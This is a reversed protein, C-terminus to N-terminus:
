GALARAAAIVPSVDDAYHRLLERLRASDAVESGTRQAAALAVLEHFTAQQERATEIARTLSADAAAADGNDAQIQALQVLLPSLMMREGSGQAIALGAEVSTRAQAVQGAARCAEAYHFHFDSLAFGMGLAEVTCLTGRMETLGEDIRGQAVLARGHLWAFGSHSASVEQDRIVGYLRETLAYVTDFEGALAHLMAAVYLAAVESVPHRNAVAIEAAHASLQRARRPEGTLWAVLALALSTEAGPDQVFRTASLNGALAEHAKLAAELQARATALEGMMMLTLGMANLGTLRLAADARREALALMNSALARAAPLEGRLFQVWWAGHLAQPWATSDSEGLALAREFAAAVDPECPVHLRTLAVAELVRLELELAPDISGLGLALAHRAAQLAERGAGRALARAAAVALQAAAAAPEGGREFHLALESAFEGAASGRMSALAAAWQRHWLLRQPAPLGDYLVHRYTAHAFAYRADIRGGDMATAGVCRLWPLAAAAQDLQAQVEAAPWQLVEALPLHVFEVGAVSAASLARQQQPTLRALQREIVGVISRPISLSQADPFLWGHEGRQLHGSDILEDVVNVVFMPHGSTHVHLARVFAEPVPGGFRATLYDDISAESLSELDVEQCLRRMRLEQRLGALPHEELILEAPRFTALVMLAAPGRRRALYGLLQVTAHDSWHLDELVMLVPGEACLRDVLEGLERLMRDQTTASAAQQRGRPDEAEAAFWPLQMLWSPAVRRITEVVATGSESRCLTNLAELVPMYAERSGYHEICQGFAVRTGAEAVLREILASKGLGAEGLVFVLQRRGQRSAALAARLQALATDRGVLLSAGPEIAPPAWPLARSESRTPREGDLPAIFRYGRRAVTQILRSERADDGLAQRLQSVINKLAAENVHRHGWVADVLEDKPVLQGARRVLECLVQFARPALDVPRGDVELRAEAEDVRFRGFRAQLRTTENM